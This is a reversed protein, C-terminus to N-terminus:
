APNSRLIRKGSSVASQIEFLGGLGVEAAVKAEQVGVAAFGRFGADVSPLRRVVPKFRDATEFPGSAHAHSCFKRDGPLNLPLGRKYKPCWESAAHIAGRSIAPM